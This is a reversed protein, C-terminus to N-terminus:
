EWFYNQEHFPWRSNFLSPVQMYFLMHPTVAFTRSCGGVATKKQWRGGILHRFSSPRVMCEWEGAGERVVESRSGGRAQNDHHVNGRQFHHIHRVHDRPGFTPQIAKKHPTPRAFFLRWTYTYFSQIPTGCCVTQTSNPHARVVFNTDRVTQRTAVTSDPQM